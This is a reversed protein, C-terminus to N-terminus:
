GSGSGVTCLASLRTGSSARRMAAAGYPVALGPALRGPVEGRRWTKLVGFIVACALEKIADENLPRIEEENEKIIQLMEPTDLRVHYAM